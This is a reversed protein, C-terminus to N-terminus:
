DSIEGRVACVLRDSDVVVLLFPLAEKNKDRWISAGISPIRENRKYITCHIGSGGDSRRMPAHARSEMAFFIERVRVCRHESDRDEARNDKIKNKLLNKKLCYSFFSNCM